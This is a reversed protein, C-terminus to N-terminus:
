IIDFNVLFEKKIDFIKGFSSTVIGTCHVPRGIKKHEEFVAVKKGKKALLYAAYCGVPGAGIIVIM